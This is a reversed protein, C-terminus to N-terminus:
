QSRSKRIVHEQKAKRTEKKSAHSTTKNNKCAFPLTSKDTRRLLGPGSFHSTHGFAVSELPWNLSVGYNSRLATTGKQLIQKTGTSATSSTM